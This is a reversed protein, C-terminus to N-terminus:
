VKADPFFSAQRPAAVHPAKTPADGAGPQAPDPGTSTAVTLRAFRQPDVATRIVTRWATDTDGEVIKLLRSLIPDVDPPTLLAITIRLALQRRDGFTVRLAHELLTARDSPEFPLSRATILHRIGDLTSSWTGPELAALPRGFVHILDSTATIDSAHTLAAAWTSFPKDLLTDALLDLYGSKGLLNRAHLHCERWSEEPSQALQWDYFRPGLRSAVPQSDKARDDHGLDYDSLRLTEPLLWGEGDNQTLFAEIGRDRDGGCLDIHRQLDHFAVLTLVTHRLEPDKEKDVRWFGKADRGDFSGRRRDCDRLVHALDEANLGFRAAATADLQIILRLREHPTPATLQATEVPAALWLWDVAFQPGTHASRATTAVWSSTEVQPAPIALSEVIHWNLHTGTMRLRTGWDFALSSLLGVISLKRVPAPSSLELVPLVNGCPFSPM